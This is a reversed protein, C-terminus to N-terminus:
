SHSAHSHEEQYREILNRSFPRTGTVYDAAQEAAGATIQPILRNCLFQVLHMGGDLVSLFQQLMMDGGTLDFAPQGNPRTLGGFLRQQEDILAVFARSWAQLAGVLRVGEEVLQAVAVCHADYHAVAVALAELALALDLAKQTAQHATLNWTMWYELDEKRRRLDSGLPGEREIQVLTDWAAHWGEYAQVMNALDERLKQVTLGAGEEEDDEDDLVAVSGGGREARRAKM